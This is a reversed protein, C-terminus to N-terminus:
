NMELEIEDDDENPQGSNAEPNAQAPSKAILQKSQWKNAQDDITCSLGKRCNACVCSFRRLEVKNGVISGNERFVFRMSHLAMIGQITKHAM